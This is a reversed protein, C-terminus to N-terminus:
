WVAGREVENTVWVCVPTEVMVVSRVESMTMVRPPLSIVVSILWGVVLTFMVLLANMIADNDVVFPEEKLNDGGSGQAGM